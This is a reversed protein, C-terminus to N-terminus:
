HKMDDMIQVTIAKTPFEFNYKIQGDSLLYVFYKNGSLGLM